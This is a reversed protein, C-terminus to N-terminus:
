DISGNPSVEPSRRSAIKRVVKEESLDDGLLRLDSVVGQLRLSFDELHEGNKFRMSEFTQRLKQARSEKVRDAGVRMSKLADWADKASDKEALPRVIEAPVARLIASLAQRDEQYPVDSTDVADWLGQAQLNVRMLVAWDSYNSRTLTPYSVSGGEKVIRQV